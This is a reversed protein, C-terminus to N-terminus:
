ANDADDAPEDDADDLEPEADEDAVVAPALLKAEAEAAAVEDEDQIENIRQVGVVLENDSTRILIVGATNRGVQSVEKV